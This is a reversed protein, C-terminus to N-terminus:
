YAGRLPLGHEARIANETIDGKRVYNLGTTALEEKPMTQRKRWIETYNMGLFSGTKTKIQYSYTGMEKYEYQAGRMARDAHILEHALGVYSPRKQGSVNGTEPDVTQM